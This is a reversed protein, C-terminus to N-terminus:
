RSLDWTIAAYQLWFTFWVHSHLANLQCVTSSGDLHFATGLCSDSQQVLCKSANHLRLGHKCDAALVAQFLLFFVFKSTVTESRTLILSTSPNDDSTSSNYRMWRQKHLVAAASFYQCVPTMCSVIIKIFSAPRITAYVTMCDCLHLSWLHYQFSCFYHIWSSLWAAAYLLVLHMNYLIIFKMGDHTLCVLLLAEPSKMWLMRLCLSWKTHFVKGQHWYASCSVATPECKWRSLASYLFVFHERGSTKM